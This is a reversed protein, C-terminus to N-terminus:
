LTVIAHCPRFSIRTFDPHQDICIVIADLDRGAAILQEARHNAIVISLIALHTDRCSRSFPYVQLM